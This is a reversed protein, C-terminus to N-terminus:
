DLHSICYPGSEIPPWSPLRILVYVGSYPGAGAAGPASQSCYSVRVSRCSPSCEPLIFQTREADSICQELRQKEFYKEPPPRYKCQAFLCEGHPMLIQRINQGEQLLSRKLVQNIKKVKYKYTIKCQCALVVSLGM